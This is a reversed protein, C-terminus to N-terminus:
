GAAAQRREKAEALRSRIARLQVLHEELHAAAAEVAGIVGVTVDGRRATRALQGATLGATFAITADIEELAGTVAHHLRDDRNEYPDLETRGSRVMEYVPAFHGGGDAGLHKLVHMVSWQDDRLAEIGNIAGAEAAFAERSARLLSLAAARRAGPEGAVASPRLQLEHQVPDTM